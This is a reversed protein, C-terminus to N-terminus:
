PTVPGGSTAITRTRGSTRSFDNAAGADFMEVLRSLMAVIRVAMSKGEKVRSAECGRKAVLADLCAGAETASGRADDFFRARQQSSRRGNGEDTNLLASLSSRDLQDLTESLRRGKIQSVEDFLETLWGIFRLELQYVELKEHDFTPNAPMDLQRPRSRTPPRPRPRPRPRFLFVM